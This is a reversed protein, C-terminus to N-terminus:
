AALAYLNPVCIDALQRALAREAPSQLEGGQIMELEAIVLARASLWHETPVDFELAKVFAAEARDRDKMRAALLGLTAYGAFLVGAASEQPLAHDMRQVAQAVVADIDIPAHDREAYRSVITGARLVLRPPTASNSLYNKARRYAEDYEQDKWLLEMALAPYDAHSDNRRAAQDMFAIAPALEDLALYARSRMYAVQDPRWWKSVDARLLTLMENWDEREFARRLRDPMEAAPVRRVVDPDPIERGHIMALDGSLANLRLIEDSSLRSEPEEMEQRLVAAQKSGEEGGAIMAHLRVLMRQYERYHRNDAYM